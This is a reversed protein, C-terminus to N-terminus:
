ARGQEDRCRTVGIECEDTDCRRWGIGDKRGQRGRRSEWSMGM